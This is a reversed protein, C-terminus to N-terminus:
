QQFPSPRTISTSHLIQSPSDWQFPRVSNFYPYKVFEMTELGKSFKREKIRNLKGFVRTREKRARAERLDFTYSAGLKFEPEQFVRHKHM